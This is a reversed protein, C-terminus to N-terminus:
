EWQSKDIPKIGLNDSKNVSKAWENFAEGIDKAMLEKAQVRQIAQSPNIVIMPYKTIEGADNDDTVIDYGAKKLIAFYQKRVENEDNLAASMLQFGRKNKPIDKITKYQNKDLVRNIEAAVKEDKAHFKSQLLVKRIKDISSPDQEIMTQFAKVRQKKNPSVLDKAAKYEIEYLHYGSKNFDKVIDKLKSNAYSDNTYKMPDFMMDQSYVGKYYNRDQNLWSVYKYDRSEKEEKNSSIRYFSSGKPIIKGNVSYRKKGEKTLSGDKNQYRRVGWKQGKIGHHELYNKIALRETSYIDMKLDGEGLVLIM